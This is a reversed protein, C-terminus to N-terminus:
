PSILLILIEAQEVGGRRRDLIERPCPACMQHALRQRYNFCYVLGLAGRRDYLSHVLGSTAAHGQYNRAGKAM